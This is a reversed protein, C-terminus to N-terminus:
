NTKFLIGPFNHLDAIGNLLPIENKRCYDQWNNFETWEYIFIFDLGALKAAEHDYRSDGLFLAPLQLHGAAIERSLIEDKTAPSGYIGRNFLPTLGREAFIYHLEAQDGGSVVMWNTHLTANRLEHLRPTIPCLLLQECVRQGYQKALEEIVKADKARHLINVILYEFKRYRSVGGNQVHFRVLQEAADAGFQMAVHSFAETKIRNSDLIVGDCDFVLTKYAKQTSATIM